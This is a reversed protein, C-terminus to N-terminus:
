PKSVAARELVKQLTTFDMEDLRKRIMEALEPQTRDVQELLHYSEKIDLITVAGELDHLLRDPLMAAMRSAEGMNIAPETATSASGAGGDFIFRVGLHKQISDFIENAKFPKYVVDNCGSELAKKHQEVFISADVKM